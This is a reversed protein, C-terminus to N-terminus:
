GLLNGANIQEILKKAQAKEPYGSCRVRELLQKARQKKGDLAYAVALKIVLGMDSPDREFEFKLKALEDDDSIGFLVCDGYKFRGSEVYKDHLLKISKMKSKKAYRCSVRILRQFDEPQAAPDKLNSIIQASLNSYTGFKDPEDFMTQKVNELTM